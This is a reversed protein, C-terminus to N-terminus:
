EAAAKIRKILDIIKEYIIDRTKRFEDIEKGSPDKIGWDEKHESSILPCEVECGM